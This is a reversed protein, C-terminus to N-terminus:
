KASVSLREPGSLRFTFDAPSPQRQGDRVVFARATCGTCQPHLTVFFSTLHGPYRDTRTLLRGDRLRESIEIETRAPVSPPATPAAQARSSLGLAVAAFALPSTALFRRRNM